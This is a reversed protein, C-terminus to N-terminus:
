EYEDEMLDGLNVDGDDLLEKLGDVEARLMAAEVVGAGMAADRQERNGDFSFNELARLKRNAVFIQVRIQDSLLSM